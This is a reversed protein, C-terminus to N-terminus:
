LITCNQSIFVVSYTWNKVRNNTRRTKETIQELKAAYKPGHVVALVTSQGTCNYYLKM